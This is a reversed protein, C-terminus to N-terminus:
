PRVVDAQDPPLDTRSFDPIFWYKGVMGSDISGGIDDTNVQICTADDIILQSVDAGSKTTRSLGGEFERSKARKSARELTDHAGQM